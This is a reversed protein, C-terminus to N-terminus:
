PKIGYAKFEEILFRKELNQARIINKLMADKAKPSIKMARIENAETRLEKLDRNVGKNYIDVLHEAMPNAAMYKAEMIPNDKFGNLRKEMELIQKEVSSFERADFNSPAGFFSDFLLTDHRPDFEKEGQALYSFNGFTQALRAAGDAYNNAFFYLTNPTVDISGNSIESFFIAVDKWIQPINDGGTYADGMRTNRNNYIERGLADINMQWEFFPRLISPTASDMLWAAPQEFKNIRSQPLPMFSDMGVEIINNFVDKVSANGSALAAMQAGSSAFAGLGFGWPLQLPKEFGPIFFRAYRTWRNIDDTAVRDRGMEDDDAVAMAMMYVLAGLGSLALTMYRAAKKQKEFDRRFQAIAKEDKAVEPNNVKFEAVAEDTDRFMPGITEIARVAGTAAPRFFMFIAGAAKGYKGVQEFNALGKVYGAARTAAEEESLKREGQMYSQKTISYAASRSALEFMDTYVDFVKNIAAGAKQANNSNLDKQLSAFTGQSSLGQLYSVMGGQQIYEYMERYKLEKNSLQSRPKNGGALRKIEAINGTNYLRSIIFARGLGGNVVGAAVSGIYRAADAASMETGITFANTLMDRVFNMPAFAFNYRTHVQGLKSTAWNLGDILPNSQQYTRRIAELQARDQVYLVDVSGDENYHFIVSRKKEEDIGANYRDKFPVTKVVDGRILKQQIANKIALTLDARGARMAARTADTMTQVLSNDSESVRGEFSHPADQLEKGLQESDFNLLYDLKGVASEAKGKLPVYHEWGYFNVLSTVPKSWYNADRNLEATVKQLKELADFVPKAVKENKKYQAQFNKISEASYTGIVNYNESFEDVSKEGSPSAGTPDKYKDALMRVVKKLQQAEQKNAVGSLIYEDMIYQRVDAPTMLKGDFRIKTKDNLPVNLLFKAERREPEHLGIAYVQLYSLADESSLNMAKAFDGIATRLEAAPTEVKTLYIDKARAASLAIQTYINNLKEKGAHIIKGARELSDEWFKIAYRDNQWATALKRLGPATTVLQRVAGVTNQKPLREKQKDVAQQFSVDERKKPAQRTQPATMALFPGSDIDGALEPMGEPNPVALIGEFAAAAELLFNGRYGPESLTLVELNKIGHEPLDILEKRFYKDDKKKQTKTQKEAEEIETQIDDFLQSISEDYAQKDEELLRQKELEFAAIRAELEPTLELKKGETAKELVRDDETVAETEQKAEREAQPKRLEYLKRMFEDYKRRAEEKSDEYKYGHFGENKDYKTITTKVNQYRGSKVKMERDVPTAYKKNELLPRFLRYLHALTNVFYGWLNDGVSKDGGRASFELNVTRDTAKAIKPSQMQALERQFDPDTMAYAVFEYLNDFARAYRGDEKSKLKPAALEMIKRLQSVSKYARPTIDEKIIHEHLHTYYAHIIKVTAAHTLEHLIAGQTLGNPGVYITNTKYNYVAVESKNLNPDFVINVKFDPLAALETALNQYVAKHIGERVTRPLDIGTGTMWQFPKGIQEAFSQAGDKLYDLLGQLDGSFMKDQINKPIRKTNARTDRKRKRDEEQLAVRIQENIAALSAENKSKALLEAQIQRKLLRFTTFQEAASSGITAIYLDQAEPSLDGWLPFSYALGTKDSMPGRERNYDRAAKQEAAERAKARERAAELQAKDTVGRDKAKDVARRGAFGLGKRKGAIYTSLEQAADTHEKWTNKSIRDFYEEVEDDTLRDFDPLKEDSDRKTSAKVKEVEGKKPATEVEEEKEGGQKEIDAALQANFEEVMEDYLERQNQPVQSRASKETKRPQIGQGALEQLPVASLPTTLTVQKGGPIPTEQEAEKRFKQERRVRAVLQQPTEGAVPSVGVQKAAAFLQQLKPDNVAEAKLPGRSALPKDGPQEFESFVNNLEDESLYDAMTAPKAPAAAPAPKEQGVVSRLGKADKATVVNNKELEELIKNARGDGIKLTKKLSSASPRITGDALGKTVQDYLEDRAPVAPVAAKRRALEDKVLKQEADDGYGILHAIDLNELEDDTMARVQAETIPAATPEKGAVTTTADQGPSVVGRRESTGAGAAAADDVGPRAPVETSTGSTESKPQIVDTEGTATRQALAGRKAELDAKERVNKNISNYLKNGKRSVEGAETMAAIDQSRRAISEELQAIEQKLADLSGEPHVVKAAEQKALDEEQQLQEATLEEFRDPIVRPATPPAPPTTTTTGPAEAEPPKEEDIVPPPPKPAARRGAVGTATGLGLAGAAAMGATEGLGETLSQDPKVDRLAVNQSFRGGTEELMESPIEKAGTALGTGIRPLVGRGAMKEGAMIREMAEGGPLYRNAIISLLYGSAGAARAKNITEAAAQEESLGQNRLEKYIMDYAGAGIDAGQQVAGTQIAATTGAKVAAKQAAAEAAEKTLGKAAAKAAQQASLQTAKTVAGATGGTLISPLINPIQEATFSALLAPDTVTEGLAAKFAGWQGGEEEAKRIAESRAAERAKLGESKLNEAHKQILRGERLLGTDSFDGTALGYIQGPLQTLSGVGQTLSAGLDKAAEGWTREKSPEVVKPQEGVRLSRYAQAVTEFDPTGKKDENDILWQAYQDLRSM